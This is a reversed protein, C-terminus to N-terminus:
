LYSFCKIGHFRSLEPLLAELPSSNQGARRCGVCHFKHEQIRCNGRQFRNTVFCLDWKWVWLIWIGVFCLQIFYM